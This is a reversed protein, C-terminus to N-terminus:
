KTSFRFFAPEFAVNATSVSGTLKMEYDTGGQLPTQLDVVLFKFEAASLKGISVPVGSVSGNVVISVSAIGSISSLKQTCDIAIKTPSVVRYSSLQCPLEDAWVAFPWLLMLGCAIRLNM